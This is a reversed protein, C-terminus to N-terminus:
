SRWGPGEAEQRRTLLPSETDTDQDQDSLLRLREAPRVPVYDDLGRLARAALRHGLALRRAPPWGRLMGALYGAAFADGAGVPEVVRVPLAPRFTAKGGAFETAGIAGDKVVLVGRPDLFRHVSATTDTHWLARAEDRGVLAVDARRALRRLVPAAADKSWLGARYNVDFSVLAGAAGAQDILDEVLAACDASLAPTIGSLHVLRTGALPLSALDAACMGAAASGSRYYYVSTGAPAPDKFYVGTPAAPDVRVLSTDVGHATLTAIIRRGFPDDGVRSVWRCHHGLDSLYRAVSSEAGAISLRLTETRALSDLDLPTLVAMAEGVCLVESVGVDDARTDEPEPLAAAM